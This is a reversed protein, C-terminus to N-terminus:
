PRRLRPVWMPVERMYAAYEDGFRALLLKEEARSVYHLFGIAALWVAGAALSLSILLLGLYLLIESLYMPHRVAAFVGKRVVHPEKRTEGFIIGLSARALLASLVLLIAGVPIRIALPVYANLFITARLFFSDAIWVGSFLVALILQGIDTIAHEGTLDDRDEWRRNSM